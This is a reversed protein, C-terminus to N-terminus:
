VLFKRVSAFEKCLSAGWTVSQETSRLGFADELDVYEVQGKNHKIDVLASLLQKETVFNQTVCVSCPFGVNWTAHWWNAPIYLVSGPLAEGVFVKGPYEKVLSPLSLLFWMHTPLDEGEMDNVVPVSPHVLAWWKRGCLLANWASTHPPDKHVDAGTHRAGFLVWRFPPRDEGLVGLLDEKFIEKLCTYECVMNEPVNQSFIYLPTADDQCSCCYELYDSIRIRVTEDTVSSEGVRLGLTGFKGGKADFYLTDPKWLKFAPWDKVYNEAAKIFCPRAFDNSFQECSPIKLAGTFCILDKITNVGYFERHSSDAKWADLPSNPDLSLKVSEVRHKVLGFLPLRINAVFSESLLLRKLVLSRFFSSLQSLTKLEEDRVMCSSFLVIDWVNNSNDM